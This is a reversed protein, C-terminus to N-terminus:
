EACLDVAEAVKAQDGTGIPMWVDLDQRPQPDARHRREECAPPSEIRAIATEVAAKDTAFALNAITVPVLASGGESGLRM